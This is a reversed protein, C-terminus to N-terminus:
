ARFLHAAFGLLGQQLQLAMSIQQRKGDSCLCFNNIRLVLSFCYDASSWSKSKGVCACVCLEYAYLSVHM